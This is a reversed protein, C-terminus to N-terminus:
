LSWRLLITTKM